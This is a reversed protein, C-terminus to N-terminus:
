TLLLRPKPAFHRIDLRDANHTRTLHPRPNRM